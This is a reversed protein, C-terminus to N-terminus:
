WNHKKVNTLKNNLILNKIKIRSFSTNKFLGSRRGTYLCIKHKKSSFFNRKNQKTCLHNIYVKVKNQTNNNQKIGKLIKLFVERSKINTLVLKEKLIDKVIKNM